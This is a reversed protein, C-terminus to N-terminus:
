RTFYLNSNLHIPVLMTVTQIYKQFPISGLHEYQSGCVVWYTDWRDSPRENKALEEM